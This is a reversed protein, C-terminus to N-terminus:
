DTASRDLLRALMHRVHVQGGFFIALIRVTETPEDLDFWFVARDITVHRLSAAIDERLTGRFPTRGISLAAIRIGELRRVARDFAEADAEGFSRYAAFLHDFILEFDREADSAFETRWAM